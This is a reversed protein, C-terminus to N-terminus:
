RMGGLTTVVSKRSRTKAPKKPLARYRFYLAYITDGWVRNPPNLTIRVIKFSEFTPSDKYETILKEASERLQYVDMLNYKRGSIVKYQPALLTRAM